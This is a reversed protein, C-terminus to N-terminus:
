ESSSQYQHNLLQNHESLPQSLSNYIDIFSDIMRAHSFNAAIKKRANQGMKESLEANVSLTLIFDRCARKDTPTYLFGDEGHTIMEALGGVIPAIVPKGLAMAELVVIPNGESASSLLLCSGQAMIQLAEEHPKAGLLIVQNGIGHQRIRAQARDMDAGDGVIYLKKRCGAQICDHFIDILYTIRKVPHLRGCFIYSDKEIEYDTENGIRKLSEVDIGNYIYRAGQYAFQDALKKQIDLSVTSVRDAYQLAKKMKWRSMAGADALAIEMGTFTIVLRYKFIFKYFILLLADINAMHLHVINIKERRFFFGLQIAAKFYKLLRILFLVPRHRALLPNCFTNQYIRVEPPLPRFFDSDAQSQQVKESILYRKFGSMKPSLLIDNVIKEAGGFGRFYSSSWFAIKLPQQPHRNRDAM